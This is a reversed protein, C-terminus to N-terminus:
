VWDFDDNWCWFLGYCMNENQPLDKRKLLGLFSPLLYDFLLQKAYLNISLLSVSSFQLSVIIMFRLRQSAGGAYSHGPTCALGLWSHNFPVLLNSVSLSINMLYRFFIHFYVTLQASQTSASRMVQLYSDVHWLEDTELMNSEPWDLGRCLQRSGKAVSFYLEVCYRVIPSIMLSANHIGSMQRHQSMPCPLRKWWSLHRRRLCLGQRHCPPPAMHFSRLPIQISPRPESAVGVTLNARRTTCWFTQVGMLRTM